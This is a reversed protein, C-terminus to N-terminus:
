HIFVGFALLDPSILGVSLDQRQFYFDLRRFRM